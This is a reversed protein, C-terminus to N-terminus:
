IFDQDVAAKGDDLMIKIYNVSRMDVPVIPFPQGCSDCKIVAPVAPALVPVDRGCIPCPYFFLLEVGCPKIPTSQRM